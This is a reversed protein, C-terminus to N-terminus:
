VGLSVEEEGHANLATELLSETRHYFDPLFDDATQSFELLTEAQVLCVKAKALSDMSETFRSVYGDNDKYGWIYQRAEACRFDAERFARDRDSPVEPPLDITLEPLEDGDEAECM